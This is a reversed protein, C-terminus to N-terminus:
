WTRVEIFWGLISPQNTEQGPFKALLHSPMFYKANSRPTPILFLVAALKAECEGQRVAFSGYVTKWVKQDKLIKGGSEAVTNDIAPTRGIFAWNDGSNLLKVAEDYSSLM